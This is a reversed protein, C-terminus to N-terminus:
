HMAMTHRSMSFYIFCSLSYIYYCMPFFKKSPCLIRVCSLKSSYLNERQYLSICNERGKFGAICLIPLAAFIKHGLGSTSFFFLRLEMKIKNCAIWALIVRTKMWHVLWDSISKQYGKWFKDLLWWTVGSSRRLKM